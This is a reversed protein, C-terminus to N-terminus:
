ARIHQSQLPLRTRAMRSWLMVTASWWMPWQRSVVSEAATRHRLSHEQSAIPVNEALRLRAKVPSCATSLTESPSGADGNASISRFLALLGNGGMNILVPLAVFSGYPHVQLIPIDFQAAAVSTSCQCRFLRGCDIKELVIGPRSAAMDTGPLRLM